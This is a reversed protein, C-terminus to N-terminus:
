VFETKEFSILHLLEMAIYVFQRQMEQILVMLLFIEFLLQIGYKM